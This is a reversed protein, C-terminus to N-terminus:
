NQGKKMASQRIFVPHGGEYSYDAEERYDTNCYEPVECVVSHAMGSYEVASFDTINGKVVQPVGQCQHRSFLVCCSGPKVSASVLMVSQVESVYNRPIDYCSGASLKHRVCYEERGCYRFNYDEPGIEKKFDLESLERRAQVWEADMPNRPFVDGHGYRLLNDREFEVLSSISDAFAAEQFEGPLIINSTCDRVVFVIEARTTAPLNPQEFLYDVCTDFGSRKRDLVCATTGNAAKRLRGSAARGCSIGVIPVAYWGGCYDSQFPPKSFSGGQGLGVQSSRTRTIGWSHSEDVNNSWSHALTKSDDKKRTSSLSYGFNSTFRASNGFNFFLPDFSYELGLKLDWGRSASWTNSRSHARVTSSSNKTSRNDNSSITVYEGPTTSVSITIGCANNRQCKNQFGLVNFDQPLGYYWGWSRECYAQCNNEANVHAFCEGNVLDLAPICM